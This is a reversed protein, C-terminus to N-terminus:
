APSPSTRNYPDSSNGSPSAAREASAKGAPLTIVVSAAVVLAMALWKLASPDQHLFVWGISAAFVPELSLLIGFVGAPLRRLAALELSYPIVSGLLATAVALLLLHSDTAIVGIGDGAFPIVLLAGIVFAMALGGQGPVLQGARKSALIYAMWFAGAILAFIVGRPDLPNGTLSDVGILGMGIVALGVALGDRLSRSLLASLLLPGLFELTVATGLPILEISAYFFSNMGALSIGFATVATWQRGSWSRVAPRAVAALVAGAILLRLATVAWPGAHPFIQTAVAAGFQLSLCSGLVLLVASKNM